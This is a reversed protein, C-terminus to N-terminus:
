IRMNIDSGIAGGAGGINEAVVTQKLGKGLEDAILRGMVDSTGGAPFPVILRIPKNPYNVQASVPSGYAATVLGALVLLYRRIM